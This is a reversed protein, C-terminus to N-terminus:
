IGDVCEFHDGGAAEEDQGIVGGCFVHRSVKEFFDAWSEEGAGARDRRANSYPLGVFRVCFRGNGGSLM